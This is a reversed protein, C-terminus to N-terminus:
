RYLRNRLGDLLYRVYSLCFDKAKTELSKAKLVHPM